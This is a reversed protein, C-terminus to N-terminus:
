GLGGGASSVCAVLIMWSIVVLLSLIAAAPAAAAAAAAAAFSSSVLELVEGLGIADVDEGLGIVGLGIASLLGASAWSVWEGADVVHVRSSSSTIAAAPEQQHGLSHQQM